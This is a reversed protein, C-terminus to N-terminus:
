LNKASQNRERLMRLVLHKQLSIWFIKELFNVKTRNSPNMFPKEFNQNKITSIQMKIQSKQTIGLIRLFSKIASQAFSSVFEECMLMRPVFKRAHEALPLIHVTKVHLNMSLIRPDLKM